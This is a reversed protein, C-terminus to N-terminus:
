RAWIVPAAHIRDSRVTRSDDASIGDESGHRFGRGLGSRSRADYEVRRWRQGARRSAKRIDDAAMQFARAATRLKDPDVQIRYDMWGETLESRGPAAGDGDM